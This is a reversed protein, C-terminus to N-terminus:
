EDPFQTPVRAACEVLEKAAQVFRVITSVQGQVDLKRQMIARIPELEKHIVQKWRAYDASFIFPARQAEEVSTLRADRCQGRELDLWIAQDGPLAQAQGRRIVLAMPGHTWAAAAHRYDSANIADRYASAWEPSPFTFAM